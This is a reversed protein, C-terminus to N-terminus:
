KTQKQHWAKQREDARRQSKEGFFGVEEALARRGRSNTSHGRTPHATQRQREQRINTHIFENKYTDNRWCCSFCIYM